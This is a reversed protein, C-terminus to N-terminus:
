IKWPIAQNNEVSRGSLPSSPKWASRHTRLYKSITDGTAETNKQSQKDVSSSAGHAFPNRWAKNNQSAPEEKYYWTGAAPNDFDESDLRVQSTSAADFSIPEISMRSDSKVPAIPMGLSKSAIPSSAASAM